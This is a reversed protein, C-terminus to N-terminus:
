YLWLASTNHAYRERRTAAGCSTSSLASGRTQKRGWVVHAEGGCSWIRPRRAPLCRERAVKSGVCFRGAFEDVDARSVGREGGFEADVTGGLRAASWSCSERGLVDDAAKLSYSSRRSKSPQKSLRLVRSRLLVLAECDCLFRTVLSALDVDVVLVVVLFGDLPNKFRKLDPDLM